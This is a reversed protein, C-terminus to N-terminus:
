SNWRVVRSVRRSVHRDTARIGDRRAPLRRQPGDRRDRGSVSGATASPTRTSSRRTRAAVARDGDIKGPTRGNAVDGPDSWRCRNQVHGTTSFSTRLTGLLPRGLSPEDADVGAAGGRGDVRGGAGTRRGPLSGPNRVRMGAGTDTRPPTAVQARGWLGMIPANVAAGAGDDRRTM